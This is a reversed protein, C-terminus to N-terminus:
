VFPVSASALAVSFSVCSSFGDFQLVTWTIDTYVSYIDITHLLTLVTHPVNSWRNDEDTKHGNLNTHKVYSIVIPFLQICAAHTHSPFCWFCCLWWWGIFHREWQTVPRIICIPFPNRRVCVLARCSFSMTRWWENLEVFNTKMAIRIERSKLRSFENVFFRLTTAIARARMQIQNRRVFFHLSLCIFVSAIWILCLHWHLSRECHRNTTAAFRIIMAVYNLCTASKSGHYLLLSDSQYGVFLSFFDWCNYASRFFLLVVMWICNFENWQSKSPWEAQHWCSFMGCRLYRSLNRFPSSRSALDNM